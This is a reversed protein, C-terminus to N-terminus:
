AIQRLFRQCTTELSGTEQLTTLASFLMDRLHEERHRRIVDAYCRTQTSAEQAFRWQTYAWALHVVVVWKEVAEYSQLRFDGLGVQLKLYFNDVECSWRQGYGQLAANASLALDTSIFYAPRKDRNHRRSIFACVEGPVEELRGRVTHVLYTRVTGDAATLTVKSSRKHRFTLAHQNMRTGNLKRNSKIASVVHWRQRRCFKILSASAYWADFHVYIVCDKPLLVALTRLIRQALRTKSVFHVRQGKPRHRNLRRVTRERLYPQIDYTFSVSGIKVACDVYSLGNKYRPRGKKSEIHDYHWDVPELHRTGKDKEAISDDLSIRIILSRDVSLQGIAWNVLFSQLQRRVTNSNWPSIRYFDAINSPDVSQVFQRHLAALTKETECMLLADVSNTLHRLQPASLPLNLQQIFTCLSPSPHVISALM